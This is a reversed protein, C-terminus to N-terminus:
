VLKKAFWVEAYPGGSHPATRRYGLADYLRQSEVLDLRTDLRLDTLGMQRAEAEVETMLRRGLGRGRLRQDVHLRRVEGVRETLRALGVCGSVAGRADTAVWFMGDPAVLDDAPHARLAAEMEESTAPRGYYRNAVDELYDRLARQAQDSTPPVARVEIEGHTTAGADM